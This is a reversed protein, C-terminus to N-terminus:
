PMRSALFDVSSSMAARRPSGSAVHDRRDVRADQQVDEERIRGEAESRLLGQPAAQSLPPDDRAVDDEGLHAMRESLVCGRRFREGAEADLVVGQAELSGQDGPFRELGVASAASPTIPHDGVEEDAAMGLLLGIAQESPVSPKM